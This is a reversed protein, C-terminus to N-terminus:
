IDCGEAPVEGTFYFRIAIVLVAAVSFFVGTGFTGAQWWLLGWSRRGLRDALAKFWDINPQEVNQESIQAANIAARMQRLRNTLLWVGLMVSNFFLLMAAVSLWFAFVEPPADLDFEVTMLLAIQFGLAAVALVLILAAATTLQAVILAHRARFRRDQGQSLM